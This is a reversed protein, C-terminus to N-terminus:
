KPLDVSDIQVDVRSFIEALRSVHLNEDRLSNAFVSKLIDVHQGSILNPVSTFIRFASERHEPSPSKTCEFLAPLIEPWAELYPQSLFLRAVNFSGTM